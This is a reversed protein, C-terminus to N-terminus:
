MKCLKSTIFSKKCQNRHSKLLSLSAHIDMDIGDLNVDITEQAKRIREASAPSFFPIHSNLMLSSLLKTDKQILATQFRKMVDEIVAMDGANVLHHAEPAPVQAYVKSSPAFGIM